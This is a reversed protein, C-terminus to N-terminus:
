QITRHNGKMKKESTPIFANCLDNNNAPIAPNDNDIARCTDAATSVYPNSSNRPLPPLM